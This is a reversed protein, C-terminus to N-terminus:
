NRAPEAGALLSESDPMVISKNSGTAESSSISPEATGGGYGEDWV